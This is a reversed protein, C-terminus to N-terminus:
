PAVSPRTDSASATFLLLQRTSDRLETAIVQEPQPRHDTLAQLASARATVDNSGAYGALAPSSSTATVQARLQTASLQLATAFQQTVRVVRESAVRKAAGRVELIAAASLSLIVVLLLGGIVLPIKQELSLKSFFGGRAQKATDQM